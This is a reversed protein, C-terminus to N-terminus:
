TDSGLAATGINNKNAKM